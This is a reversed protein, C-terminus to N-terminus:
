PFIVEAHEVRYVFTIVGRHGKAAACARIRQGLEAAEQPTVSDPVVIKICAAKTPTRRTGTIDKDTIGHAYYIDEFMAHLWTRRRTTSNRFTKGIAKAYSDPIVSEGPLIISALNYSKM